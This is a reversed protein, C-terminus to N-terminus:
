FYVLLGQSSRRRGSPEEVPQPATPGRDDQTQHVGAQGQAETWRRNGSAEAVASSANPRGPLPFWSSPL